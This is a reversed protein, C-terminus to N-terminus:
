MFSAIKKKVMSPMHSYFGEDSTRKKGDDAVADIEKVIPLGNADRVVAYGQEAFWPHAFTEEVTLRKAPDVELLAKTFAKASPSIDEWDGEYCFPDNEESIYDDWEFERWKKRQLHPYPLYGQLLIYLVVGVSWLDSNQNFTKELVVEPAAYSPSGVPRKLKDCQNKKPSERPM